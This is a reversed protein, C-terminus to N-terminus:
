LPAEADSLPAAPSASAMPPVRLAPLSRSEIVAIVIMWIQGVVPLFCVAAWWGSRGFDRHRRAAVSIYPLVGLLVYAASIIWLNGRPAPLDAPAALALKALCYYLYSAFTFYILFMGYERRRARGRFTLLDCWWATCGRRSSSATKMVTLLNLCTLM